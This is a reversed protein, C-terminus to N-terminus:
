ESEGRVYSRVAPYVKPAPPFDAITKFAWPVVNPRHLVILDGTPQVRHIEEVGGDRLHQWDADLMRLYDMGQTTEALQELTRGSIRIQNLEAM